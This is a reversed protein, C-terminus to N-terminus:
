KLSLQGAHLDLPKLGDEYIKGVARAIMRLNGYACEHGRAAYGALAADAPSNARAKVQAARRRRTKSIDM